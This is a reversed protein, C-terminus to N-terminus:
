KHRASYYASYDTSFGEPVKKAAAPSGLLENLRGFCGAVKNFGAYACMFLLLEEIEERTAGQKMAMDVHAGFPSGAGVQDQIVVDVAITILAKTKQDILPYGWVEGAVRTCLDGFKPNISNLKAQLDKDDLVANKFFGTGAGNRGNEPNNSGTIGSVAPSSMLKHGLMLELINEQFQNTAGVSTILAATSSGRQGALTMKGNYVFTYSDREPYTCIQRVYRPQDKIAQAFEESAFFWEMDLRNQFAIEFAAQYQDELAEQHSVGEAPPLKDTNDHEELLHLRFKLVLDSKVIAPAFVDRMYRRFEEVSVRHAKKVLVHLKVVVPGPGGNPDGVPLGDVYTKSNGPLAVYGVTKSFVNHEDAMLIGAANFWSQLDDMNRFTLEPIGDFQFEDELDYKIEKFTEPWIGGKNHGIHHQWYQYQGPLRACLPGHVDRWYDDFLQLSIGKRIKLPVYFTCVGAADRASYDIKPM